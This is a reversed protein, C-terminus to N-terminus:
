PMGWGWGLNIFALNNEQPVCDPLRMAKGEFNLIPHFYRGVYFARAKKHLFLFYTSWYTKYYKAGTATFVSFTKIEKRPSQGCFKKVITIIVSKIYDLAYTV